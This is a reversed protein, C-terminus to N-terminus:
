CIMHQQDHWRRLMRLCIRGRWRYRYVILVGDQCNQMSINLSSATETTNRVEMKNDRMVVMFTISTIAMHQRACLVSVAMTEKYLTRREGCKIKGYRQILLKLPILGM